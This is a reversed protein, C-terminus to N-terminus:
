GRGGGLLSFIYDTELWSGIAITVGSVLFTLLLLELGGVFAERRTEFRFLKPFLTWFVICLTAGINLFYGGFEMLFISAMRFSGPVQAFVVGQFFKGCPALLVIPLVFAARIIMTLNSVIWNNVFILKRMGWADRAFLVRNREKDHWGKYAKLLGGYGPVKYELNRSFQLVPSNMAETYRVWGQRGALYGIGYSGVYLVFLVLFIYRSRQIRHRM